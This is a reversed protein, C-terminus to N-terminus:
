LLDATTNIFFYFFFCSRQDQKNWLARPPPISGGSVVNVAHRKVMLSGWFLIRMILVKGYFGHTIRIIRTLKITCIFRIAVSLHPYIM